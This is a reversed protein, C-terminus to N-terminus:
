SEEISVGAGLTGKNNGGVLYMVLCGEWCVLRIKTSEDFHKSSLREVAFDEDVVLKGGVERLLDFGASSLIKDIEHGPESPWLIVGHKMNTVINCLKLKEIFREINRQVTSRPMILPKHSISKCPIGLHTANHTM